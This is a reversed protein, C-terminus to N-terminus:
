NLVISELIKYNRLKKENSPTLYITNNENGGNKPGRMARGLVQLALTPSNIDSLIMISNMGPVDIGTSLIQHNVLVSLPNEKDGFNKLYEERKVEPTEGVILGNDVNNKNLFISLAVAHAKSKAFIITNQKQKILYQCEKLVSNHLTRYFESKNIDGDSMDLIEFTVESLYKREILFQLPSEIQQDEENTLVLYDTFLNKLSSFENDDSRYPTATLGLIKYYSNLNKFSQIIESYTNADSSHAEDIILYDTKRLLDQVEESDKRSVLLDFTAFTIKSNSNNYISNFKGFYREAIVPHDGKQNWIKQFSKLSQESLEKSNVVWVINIHKGKYTEYTRFLDVIVEMALVTKGAGTPMAALIIPNLNKLFKNLIKVKLRQQYDHPYANVGNCNGYQPVKIEYNERKDPKIEVLYEDEINFDKIFRDQNKQYFYIAEFHDKFGMSKIQSLRCSEILLDKKSKVLEVGKQIAVAQDVIDQDIAYNDNEVFTYRLIKTIENGLLSTKTSSDLNRILLKLGM